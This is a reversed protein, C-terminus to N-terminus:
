WSCFFGAIELPNKKQMQAFKKQYKFNRSNEDNSFRATDDVSRQQLAAVTRADFPKIHM